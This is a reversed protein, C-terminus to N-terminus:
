TDLLQFTHIREPLTSRRQWILAGWLQIHAINIDGAAESIQAAMKPTCSGIMLIESVKLEM